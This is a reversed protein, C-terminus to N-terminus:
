DSIRCNSFSNACQIGDTKFAVYIRNKESLDTYGWIRVVYNTLSELALQVAELRDCLDFSDLGNQEVLAISYGLNIAENTLKAMNTNAMNASYRKELEEVTLIRASRKM